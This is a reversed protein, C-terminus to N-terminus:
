TQAGPKNDSQELNAGQGLLNHLANLSEQKHKSAEVQPAPM